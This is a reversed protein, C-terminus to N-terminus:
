DASYVAFAPGGQDASEHTHSRFDGSAAGSEAGSPTGAVEAPLGGTAQNSGDHSSVILPSHEGGRASPSPKSVITQQNGTNGRKALSTYAQPRNASGGTILCFLGQGASRLRRSFKKNELGSLVGRGALTVSFYSPKGYSPSASTSELVGSFVTRLNGRTGAKIEINEGLPFSLGVIMDFTVSFTHSVQSRSQNVSFSTVFPTKALLMSGMWIEARIQEQTIPACAVM